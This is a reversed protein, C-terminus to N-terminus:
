VSGKLAAWAARSLEPAAETPRMKTYGDLWDTMFGLPIGFLISWVVEASMNGIEKNRIASKITRTLHRGLSDFGVMTPKSLSQSLFEDHRALWVYRALLPHGEAFDLFAVVLAKVTQELSHDKEIAASLHARFQTIGDSYLQSAIEEKNLFHHYISGVSCKSLKSIDPVNTNFYGQEVFLKLAAKLVRDRPGLDGLDLGGAESVPAEVGSSDESPAGETTSSSVISSM